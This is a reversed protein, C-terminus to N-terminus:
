SAIGLIRQLPVLAKSLKELQLLDNGVGRFEKKDLHDEMQGLLRELEAIWETRRELDIVNDLAAELTMKLSGSDHEVEGAVVDHLNREAVLRVVETDATDAKEKLRGLLAFSQPRPIIKQDPGLNDRVSFQCVQDLRAISHEDLRFTDPDTSIFNNLRRETVAAEILSYHHDRVGDVVSRLQRFAVYTRLATTVDRAPVALIGAVRQRREAVFKFEPLSPEIAMYTKYINFAKPLPEWELLSGHHRLGLLISIRKRLEEASIDATVLELVPLAAMASLLDAGLTERADDHARKLFKLASVRRNGEIVLFRNDGVAKVVIKDIPVYGVQRFSDLLDKINFFESQGSTDFMELLKDQYKSVENDPIHAQVDLSTVCRPNNPDLLLQDLSISIQRFM